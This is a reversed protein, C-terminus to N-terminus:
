AEPVRDVIIKCNEMHLSVIVQGFNYLHIDWHQGNQISQRQLLAEDSIICCLFHVTRNIHM